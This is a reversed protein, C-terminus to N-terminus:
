DILTPHSYSPKGKHKDIFISQRWSILCLISINTHLGHMLQEAPNNTSRLFAAFCTKKAIIVLPVM